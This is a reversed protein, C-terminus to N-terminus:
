CGTSGTAKADSRMSTSAAASLPSKDAGVRGGSKRGPRDLRMMSKKGMVEGGDKRAQKAESAVDKNGSALTPVPDSVSKGGTMKTGGKMHRARSM